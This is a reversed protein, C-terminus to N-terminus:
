YRGKKDRHALNHWLHRRDFTRRPVKIENSVM